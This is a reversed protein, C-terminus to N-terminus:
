LLQTNQWDAWNTFVTTYEALWGLRELHLQTNQWNAWNTLATTYEALWGLRELATTYEALWGLKYSCKLIRGTLGIARLPWGYNDDNERAYVAYEKNHGGGGRGFAYKSFTSEFHGHTM